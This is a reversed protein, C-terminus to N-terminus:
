AALDNDTLFTLAIPHSGHFLEALIRKALIGSEFLDTHRDGCYGVFFSGQTRRALFRVGPPHLM